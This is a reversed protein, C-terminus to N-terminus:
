KNEEKSKQSNETNLKKLKEALQIRLERKRKMEDNIADDELIDKQVNTEKERRQEKRMKLLMERYEVLKKRKEIELENLKKTLSENKLGTGTGAPQPDDFTNSPTAKKGVEFKTNTNQPQPGPKFFLNPVVLPEFDKKPTEEPKKAKVPQAPKPDQKKPEAPKPKPKDKKAEKKENEVSEKFEKMAQNGKSGEMDLLSRKLAKKLEIDEIAELKKREEEAAMSMQIALDVLEKERQESIQKQVKVQEENTQAMGAKMANYAMEELQMNRKTMMNKFYNYNTFSILQEFYKKDKESELGKKAALLFMEDTVGLQKLSADLLNEILLVFEKHLAGQEFTNETTGIFSGCNEDIFDKIPNRFEPATIIQVVYDYVWQSDSDM